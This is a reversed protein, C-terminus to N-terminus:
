CTSQRTPSHQQQVDMWCSESAPPNFRHQVSLLLVTQVRKQEIGHALWGWLGTIYTTHTKVRPSGIVVPCSWCCAMTSPDVTTSTYQVRCTNIPFPLSRRVVESTQRAYRNPYIYVKITICCHRSAVDLDINKSATLVRCWGWGGIAEAIGRSFNACGKPPLSFMFSVRVSVDEEQQGKPWGEQEDQRLADGFLVHLCM